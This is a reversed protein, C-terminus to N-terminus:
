KVQVRVKKPGLVPKPFANFNKLSPATKAGSSRSPSVKGNATTSVVKKPQMTRMVAVDESRRLILSDALAARATYIIWCLVVIEVALLLSCAIGEYAGMILVRSKPKVEVSGGKSYEFQVETNTFRVLLPNFTAFKVVISKTSTDIFNGERM